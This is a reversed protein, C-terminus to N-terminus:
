SADADGPRLQALVRERLPRETRDAYARVAAVLEARGFIEELRRLPPGSETGFLTLYLTRYSARTWREPLDGDVLLAGPEAAVTRDMWCRGHRALWAHAHRV